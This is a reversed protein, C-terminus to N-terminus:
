PLGGARRLLIFLDQFLGAAVHLALPPTLYAYAVLSLGAVAPLVCGRIRHM